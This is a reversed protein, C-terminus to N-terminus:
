PAIVKQSSPYGTHERKELVQYPRPRPPAKHCPEPGWGVVQGTHYRWGRCDPIWNIREEFIVYKTGPGKWNAVTWNAIGWGRTRGVPGVPIGWGRSVVYDVASRAGNTGHEAYTTGNVPWFREILRNTRAVNPYSTGPRVAWTQIVM